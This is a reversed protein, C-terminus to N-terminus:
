CPTFPVAVPHDPGRAHAADALDRDFVRTVSNGCVDELMPDVVLRKQTARWPREPVFRWATDAEIPTGTGPVRRGRGDVITLCHALLAHDLTRGFVVRLAVRTGAAVPDLKWAGPEVLARVDSGVGYRRRADVGLPMGRADRMEAGIVLQVREGERLPYGAERHPALGRKIRAPDFLVTLRTRQPDWLEPEMDLLAGPQPTGSADDVTIHRAADGESMPASFEVYCRLLNRPVVAYTPHIALVRAPPGGGTAPLQVNLERDGLVASYSRGRFLAHRPTFTIGADDCHYEGHMPTLRHALVPAVRDGGADDLLESAFVPLERALGDVPLARLRALDPGALGEVRLEDHGAARSWILRPTV